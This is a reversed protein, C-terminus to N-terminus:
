QAKVKSTLENNTIEAKFGDPPTVPAVPPPLPNTGTLIAPKSTKYATTTTPDFYNHTHDNFISQFADTVIKKLSSGGVEIDGNKKITIKQGENQVELDNNNSAINQDVFSYLGAIAVADSLDFKRQDGPDSVEGTGYWRELSREAFVILVGDGKSIPFTIGAKKTRPFIVPVNTLPPIEVSAGDLYKKRILPKVTAKQTKYDYSEVSGPLCTHIESMLAEFTNAIAQALTSEM